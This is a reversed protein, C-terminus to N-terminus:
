WFNDYGARPARRHRRAGLRVGGAVAGGRVGGFGAGGPVEAAAAGGAGGGLLARLPLAVDPGSRPPPLRRREPGEM